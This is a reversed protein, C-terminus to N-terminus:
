QRFMVPLKIEMSVIELHHKEGSEQSRPGKDKMVPTQASEKAANPGAM